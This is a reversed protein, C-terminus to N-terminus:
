KRTEVEGAFDSDGFANIAFVDKQPKFMIIYRPRGKLYKGIRMLKEWDEIRPVAMGRAAEKCAYGIDPRDQCLFNCRAILQRFKTAQAPEPHKNDEDAVVARKVGPSVVAKADKIGLENVLIEVHRPDPEYLIGESTWEVCRNLITIAKDDSKDPEM